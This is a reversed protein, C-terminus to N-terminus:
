NLRATLTQHTQCAGAIMQTNLCAADILQWRLLPCWFPEFMDVYNWILAATKEESTLM